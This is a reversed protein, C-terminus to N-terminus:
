KDSADSTSCCATGPRVVRETTRVSVRVFAVKKVDLVVGYVPVTKQKQVRCSATEPLKWAVMEM